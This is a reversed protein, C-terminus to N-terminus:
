DLPPMPRNVPPQSLPYYPCAKAISYIGKAAISISDYATAM